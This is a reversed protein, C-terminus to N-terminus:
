SLHNGSQDGLRVRDFAYVKSEYIEIRLDKGEFWPRTKYIKSFFKFKEKEVDFCMKSAKRLGWYGGKALESKLWLNSHIKIFVDIEKKSLYDFDRDISQKKM